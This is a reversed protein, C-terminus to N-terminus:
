NLLLAVIFLCISALASLPTMIKKELNSKSGANALTNLGLYLAFFWVGLEAIIPDFIGTLIDVRILVLIIAIVFILIAVLSLVRLKMPLVEYRGGYAPVPNSFTIGIALLFQFVSMGIFIIVAVFAAIVALDNM